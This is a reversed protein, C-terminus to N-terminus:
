AGPYWVGSARLPELSNVTGRDEHEEQDRHLGRERLHHQPKGGGSEVEPVRPERNVEVACRHEVPSEPRTELVPHRSGGALM